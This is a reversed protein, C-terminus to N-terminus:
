TAPTNSEEKIRKSLDLGVSEKFQYSQIWSYKLGYLFRNKSSSVMASWVLRWIYAAYFKDDDVPNLIDKQWYEILLKEDIMDIVLYSMIITLVTMTWYIESYKNSDFSIDSSINTKHIYVDSLYSYIKYVENEDLFLIWSYYKRHRILWIIKDKTITTQTWGHFCDLWSEFSKRLYWWAADYHGIQLFRNALWLLELTSNLNEQIVKINLENYFKGLFECLIQFDYFLYDLSLEIKNIQIFQKTQKYIKQEKDHLEHAVKVATVHREAPSASLIASKIKELVSKNELYTKDNNLIYKVDKIAKNIKYTIDKSINLLLADTTEDDVRKKEGTVFYSNIVVLEKEFNQEKKIIYKYNLEIQTIYNLLIHLEDVNSLNSFPNKYKKQNSFKNIYIITWNMLELLKLARDTKERQINDKRERRYIIWSWFFTLIWWIIAWLFWSLLNAWTM